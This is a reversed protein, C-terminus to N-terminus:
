VNTDNPPPKRVFATILAHLSERAREFADHQAAHDGSTAAPDPLSWHIRRATGPFAPCREAADDCLTIVYDFREGAYADVHESRLETADIGADALVRLTMPQIGKPEVGASRVDFADGGFHRLLAEAIISRASNGTCLFLVRTPPM